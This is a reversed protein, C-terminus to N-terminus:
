TLYTSTCAARHLAVGFNVLTVGSLESTFIVRSRSPAIQSEDFVWAIRQSSILIKADCVCM